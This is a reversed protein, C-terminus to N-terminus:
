ELVVEHCRIKGGYGKVVKALGPRCFAKCYDAGINKAGLKLMDLFQKIWLNMERGGMAFCELVKRGPYHVEQSIAVGYVDWDEHIILLQMTGTKCFFLVNEATYEGDTRDVARKVYDMVDPWVADVADKAVPSVKIM